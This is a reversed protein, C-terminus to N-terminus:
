GTAYKNAREALESLQEMAAEADQPKRGIPADALATSTRDILTMATENQALLDNIKAEQSEM